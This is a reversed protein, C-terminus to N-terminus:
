VIDIGQAMDIIEEKKAYDLNELYIKLKEHWQKEGETGYDNDWIEDNSIRKILLAIEFDKLTQFIYFFEDGFICEAGLIDVLDELSHIEERIIGVKDKVYRCDRIENTINRFSSNDLSKGDVYKLFNKESKNLTIFINELTDTEINIIISQAIQYISKRMYQILSRDSICLESCLQELAEELLKNIQEKSLDELMNKLYVRKERTIELSNGVQGILTLGLCNTLVLKFINILIHESNHFFGKLLAEIEIYSFYSCFKNELILKKLYEEIYEIGTLSFEDFALPYDISGPTEHSAFRVDYEEFFLPIGYDITDLYAYNETQIRTEKVIQLLKKCEYVKDNLLKEGDKHLLKLSKYKILGVQRELKEKDKLYIGLTYCISLVLKEAVENKVSSSKQKTYCGIIEKLTEVLQIQIKELEGISLLKNAYSLQLLSQFHYKKNLLKKLDDEKSIIFRDM